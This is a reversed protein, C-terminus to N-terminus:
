QGQNPPPTVGEEGGSSTAWGRKTLGFQREPRRCEASEKFADPPAWSSSSLESGVKETLPPTALTWCMEGKECGSSSCAYRM